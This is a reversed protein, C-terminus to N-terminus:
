SPRPQDNILEPNEYLNGIIEYETIPKGARLYDAGQEIIKICEFGARSDSWEFRITSEKPGDHYNWFTRLIDGEYIEKGNKDKLGTYQMLHIWKGHAQNGNLPSSWREHGNDRWETITHNGDESFTIEKVQFMRNNAEDWAMFKIERSM